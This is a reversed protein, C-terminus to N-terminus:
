EWNINNFIINVNNLKLTIVNNSNFSNEDISTSLIELNFRFINNDRRLKTIDSYANLDSFRISNNSFNTAYKNYKYKTFSVDLNTTKELNWYFRTVDNLNTPVNKCDGIQVLDFPFSSIAYGNTDISTAKFGWNNYYNSSSIPILYHETGYEDIVKITDWLYANGSEIINGTYNINSIQMIEQDNFEVLKINPSTNKRIAYEIVYLVKFITNNETYGFKEKESNTLYTVHKTIYFLDDEVGIISKKDSIFSDDNNSDFTATVALVYFDYNSQDVNKVYQTVKSNEGSSLKILPTNVTKDLLTLKKATQLNNNKDETNSLLTIVQGEKITDRNLAGNNSDLQLVVSDGKNAYELNANSGQSIKLVSSIYTKKNQKDVIEVNDNLSIKGDEITGYVMIYNGTALTIKSIKMNFTNQVINNNSSLNENNNSNLNNNSDKTNLNIVITIAVIGIIVVIIVSLIVLSIGNKNKLM